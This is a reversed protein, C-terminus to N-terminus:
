KIKYLVSLPEKSYAMMKLGDHQIGPNVLDRLNRRTYVEAGGFYLYDVNRRRLKGVLEPISGATPLVTFELDAYYAIHPKRAAIVRGREEPPVNEKFWNGLV